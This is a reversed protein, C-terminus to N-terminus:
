PAMPATTGPLLLVMCCVIAPAVPVCVSIEPAFLEFPLQSIGPIKWERVEEIWQTLAILNRQDLEEANRFFSDYFLLKDIKWFSCFLLLILLPLYPIRLKRLISRWLPQLALFFDYVPTHIGSILLFKKGLM